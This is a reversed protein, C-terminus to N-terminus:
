GADISPHALVYIPPGAAGAATIMLYYKISYLGSGIDESKTPLTKKTVTKFKKRKPVKVKKETSTDKGVTFSTADINVHLEPPVLDHMAQQGAAFSAINRIDAIAKARADTTEEGNKTTLDLMKDYRNLSRKSPPNINCVVNKRNSIHEKALEAFKKKYAEETVLYDDSENVFDVLKKRAVDDLLPYRGGKSNSCFASGEKVKKTWKRITRSCIGTRKSVDASSGEGKACLNGIFYKDCASLLNVDLSASAKKKWSVGFLM